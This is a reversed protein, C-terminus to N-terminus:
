RPLLTFNLAFRQFQFHNVAVKHQSLFILRLNFRTNSLTVFYRTVRFFNSLNLCKLITKLHTQLTDAIYTSLPYTLYPVRGCNDPDPPLASFHVRCLSINDLAGM